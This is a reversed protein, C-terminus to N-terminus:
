NPGPYKRKKNYADYWRQEKDNMQRGVSTLVGTPFFDAAGNFLKIIYIMATNSGCIDVKDIVWYGKFRQHVKNITVVDGAFLDFDIGSEKRIKLQKEKSVPQFIDEFDEKILKELLATFM